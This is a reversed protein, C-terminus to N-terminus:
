GYVREAAECAARTAKELIDHVIKVRPQKLAYRKVVNEDVAEYMYTDMTVEIQIVHVHNAPDNHRRTIFGGAYPVDKAVTLNLGHPEAEAELTGVLADIIEGHASTGGLTGVVFNDRPEGEDYVRGQGVATMSHGDIVLAYGRERRMRHILRELAGHFLDYYALIEREEEPTYDARLIPRNEVTFYEQPPNRLHDPAHPQDAGERSRNMDVFFPALRCIVQMAELHEFIVDSFLDIELLAKEGTPFRSAFKTPVFLGAHPIPLIFGRGKLNFEILERPTRVHTEHNFVDLVEVPSPLGEYLAEVESFEAHGDAPAPDSAGAANRKM